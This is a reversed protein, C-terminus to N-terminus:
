NVNSDRLVANHKKIVNESISDLALLVEASDLTREPSDFILKFAISKKNEGVQDGEYYDFVKVDSLFRVGTKKITNIVDGCLVDKDLIFALDKIVSPYKTFEKYKLKGTKFELLKSLDIEFVYVRDKCINPHVEGFIGVNKGNLNIYVSRYPHMEDMDECANFSYRGKYGLYDLLEEIVGKVFYFDVEEDNIGTNFKGTLLGSLLERQIPENDIINFGEGNEFICIDKNGRSKNYKYVELLSSILSYRLTTREESMPERVKIYDFKDNTFLNIDKENILSYTKVESLGMMILKDKINRIRNDFYPVRDEFTPLKEKINSVGYIRGVEEILDEEISIDLRRNPVSVKFIGNEYTSKFGLKDFVESVDNSEIDFGLVRCIKDLTIDIVKDDMSLTNYECTGRCVEGGAYLNLFKCARDMALYTRNVDLGKEFRISAESRLHKISTYRINYPNFIASEIFVNKTNEDIETSYGGMVGALGIAEDRENVIVIDESTLNRDKNDLTKLIEGDHAMRVGIANGLKDADYFHLPQGTELMIYNSIDVVNNIPRIGCAILRNKIFLPSEGIKINNVRNGLFTYCNETNVNININCEESITDYSRDINKVKKNVIAGVEYALGIMSLLDSRNSTLEFDIVDDDLELYEIPNEGIPAEENLEHIGEIDCEDLYKSDIGLEALSCIMGNSDEGLVEKRKIVGGPLEAGDLAVIVKLGERVNPAGCIINLIEKGIDVRCIHLHDSKPHDKCSIVKGIILKNAKVLPGFSAYENGIKVMEDAIYKTDVDSIDVYDNVFKKSLIM